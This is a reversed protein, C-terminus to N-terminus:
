VDLGRDGGILSGPIDTFVMFLALAAAIAGTSITAMRWIRAQRKLQIIEAGYSSSPDRDPQADIGKLINDLQGAPPQHPPTVADLPALREQWQQVARALAPERLLRAEVAVREAEDLTGLVYEGALESALEDKHDENSAM